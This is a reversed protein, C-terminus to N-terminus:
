SAHVPDVGISTHGPRHTGNPVSSGGPPWQPLLNVLLDSKKRRGLTLTEGGLDQLFDRLDILVGQKWRQETALKLILNLADRMVSPPVQRRTASM